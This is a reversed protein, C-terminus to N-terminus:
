QRAAHCIGGAVASAWRCDAVGPFGPPARLLIWDDVASSVGSGAKSVHGVAERLSWLLAWSGLVGM